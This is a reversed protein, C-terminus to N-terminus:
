LGLNFRFTWSRPQPTGLTNDQSAESLLGSTDVNPDKGVYNSWLGLNRGALTIALTQAHLRRVLSIPVTYTASFENLRVSSSAGYYTNNNAVAQLYAAQQALSTTRDVAARPIYTPNSLVLPTVKDLVQNLNVSLRLAGDLLGLQSGYTVEAKPYPAGLYTMTGLVIENQALIGDGNADAYSGVPLGWYGYLPYGERFQTNLPGNVGIGPAMRVLKNSNRAGNVTVDWSMVRADIVKATVGVEVGRNSVDGLNTYQSYNGLSPALQKASLMNRTMKRYLTTELHIRENDLFSVDVGGEWETGLEPRLTANGVTGVVIGPTTVSSGALTLDAQYYQNIVATRSAQNGSQGYAFRFRLSSVYPQKPFFSQESLPYSFNFKPYNPPSKSIQGGFASALDQRVGVTTYLGFLNVTQEFYVGATAAEDRSETLLYKPMNPDVCTPEPTLLTSGFALTCFNYYNNGVQLNYYRTHSYQAGIATRLNLWATPSFSLNASGNTTTVFTNGRSVVHGSPCPSATGNQLTQLLASCYQAQLDSQDSRLGYDGGGTGSLSLWGWPRADVTGALTGRTEASTVRTRQSESPLYALSDEPRFTVGGNNQDQIGSGGNLVNRYIGTTTLSLDIKPSVNVTTRSSGDFDQETNPHVMWSPAPVSWLQAIVHREVDSMKAMGVNSSARASFFQQWGATGGAVSGSLSRNTGTGLTKMPGYNEVNFHTVSDQHCNGDAVTGVGQGAALYCVWYQNNGAVSGWGRWVDPMRGPVFSLGADGTVSLRWAGAQGKKTKIVIVGNAADTGYLSSASPGRLVDISEITNPDIDDLRSPALPPASNASYSTSLQGLTTVSGSTTQLPAVTTMANLRVGDVIIIPDNNLNISSIGRIRIKSPAGVAGDTNSVIVGPVRAQLLDSLNRILTTAVVSDAKIMGVANGVEFRRRDGTATTVVDNLVTAAATLTAVITETGDDKITVPASYVQYGIRRVVLRYTGAGVGTIRFAGDDGTRTRFATGDLSVSAGSIPRKTAADAVRGVVGGLLRGSTRVSEISVVDSRLAVATLQTGVLLQEFVKGLPVQSAHITIPTQVADLLAVHYQVRIGTNSAIAQVAAKLTVRDLRVTVLRAFVDEARGDTTARNEAVAQQAFVNGGGFVM